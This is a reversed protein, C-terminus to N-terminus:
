YGFGTWFQFRNTEVSCCVISNSPCKQTYSEISFSKLFLWAAPMDDAPGGDHRAGPPGADPLECREAHGASSAKSRGNRRHFSAKPNPKKGNKNKKSKVDAKSNVQLQPM